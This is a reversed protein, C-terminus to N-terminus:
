SNEQNQQDPATDPTADLRFALVTIDDRQPCPGQYATLAETLAHRQEGLTKEAHEKLWATFGRRGLPLSKDGGSQDLIGDSVLYFTAGPRPAISRTTFDRPKRDNIGGREGQFHRIEGGEAVFLDIHAGAFRVAGAARDVFCLGIDMSTALRELRDADPLMQRAAADIRALLAAPDRWDAEVVAREMAAHATMTMFAGPVGHGACDIVGFLCGDARERYLYFDGGVVDRPRWIVFYRGHLREELQRDPLIVRQILSAYRISETLQRHTSALEAHAAELEATRAAVRQELDETHAQVQAAMSDFARSLQGIEDDRPSRLRIDYRGAAIQRASATLAHLPHLVIRDFGITVAGVLILLALGGGIVILRVFGVSRATAMSPTVSSVVTWGLQPLHAFAMIRRGDVTPLDLAEVAGPRTRALSLAATALERARDGTIRAHLTKTTEHKALAGYEIQSRDPHAVVRGEADVVFSLAGESRPALMSALFRDLEMGTGILGLIAGDPERVQINIWLNTVKLTADPNVNLAYPEPRSMTAFYWADDTANPALTYRVRADQETVRDAHYYNLSQQHILFYSQDAFAQRFGEAETLFRERRAPDDESRLWDRVATLGAFRQAIALERGVLSQIKERTLQAETTALERGLDAGLGSLAQQGLAAALLLVAGSIVLLLLGVKRRLGPNRTPSEPHVNATM